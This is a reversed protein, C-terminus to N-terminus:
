LPRCGISVMDNQQRLVVQNDMQGHYLINVASLKWSYGNNCILHCKSNDITEITQHGDALLKRIYRNNSLIDSDPNYTLDQPQHHHCLEDSISILQENNYNVVQKCLKIVLKEVNILERILKQNLDSTSKANNTFLSDLLNNFTHSERMM